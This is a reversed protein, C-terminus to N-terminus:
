SEDVDVAPGEQTADAGDLQADPRGFFPGEYGRERAIMRHLFLRGGSSEEDWERQRRIREKLKFASVMQPHNYLAMNLHWLAKKWDGEAYADVAKHYQRQAVRERGHLMLGQRVGVRLRDVDEYQQRSAAAYAAHDKVIHVTLLIIVEERTSKDERSRFLNGLGPIGGLWPVQRRTDTTVERFLGGILITEGDRILINTTVETTQESPLGQANVFGVSDEPHLEMRIIGDDGIFPRFILQTGTELYEVAQIAQTETVAPTKGTGGATLNGVSLVFGDQAHKKLLGKRYARLRMSIGLGYLLSFPGLVPGWWWASEGRHIRKWDPRMSQRSRTMVPQPM